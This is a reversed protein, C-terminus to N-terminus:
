FMATGLDRDPLMDECYRKAFRACDGYSELKGAAPTSGTRAILVELVDRTRRAVLDTCGLMSAIVDRVAFASGEVAVYQEEIARPDAEITELADHFANQLIISAHGDHLVPLRASTNM